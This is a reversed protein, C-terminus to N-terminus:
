GLRLTERLSLPVGLARVLWGWRVFTIFTGLLALLFAWFILWGNPHCQSIREWANDRSARYFLWVFILLVLAWKLLFIAIKKM